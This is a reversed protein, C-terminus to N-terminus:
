RATFTKRISHSFGVYMLIYSVMLVTNVIDFQRQAWIHSGFLVKLEISVLYLSQWFLM